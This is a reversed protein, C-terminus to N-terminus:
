AFPVLNWLDQGKLHTCHSVICPDATVHQFCAWMNVFVESGWRRLVAGARAMVHPSQSETPIVVGQPKQTILPGLWALGPVQFPSQLSALKSWSSTRCHFYVLKLKVRLNIISSLYKLLELCWDTDWKMATIQCGILGFHSQASYGSNECVFFCTSEHIMEYQVQDPKQGYRIIKRKLCRNPKRRIWIATNNCNRRSNPQSHLVELRM